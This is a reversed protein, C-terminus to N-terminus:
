FKFASFYSQMKQAGINNESLIYLYSIFEVSSSSYPHVM